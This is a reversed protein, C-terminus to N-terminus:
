LPFPEQSCYGNRLLESLADEILQLPGIGVFATAEQQAAKLTIRHRDSFYSGDLINKFGLLLIVAIGHRGGIPHLKFVLGVRLAQCEDAVIVRM